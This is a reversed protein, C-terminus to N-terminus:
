FYQVRHKHHLLLIDSVNFKHLILSCLSLVDYEYIFRLGVPKSFMIKTVTFLLGLTFRKKVM